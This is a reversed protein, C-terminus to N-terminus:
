ITFLKDLMAIVEKADSESLENNMIATNISEQLLRDANACLDSLTFQAASPDSAFRMVNAAIVSFHGHIYSAVFLDHESGSEIFKDLFAEKRDLYKDVENLLQAHQESAVHM